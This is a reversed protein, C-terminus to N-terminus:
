KITVGTGVEAWDYLKKADGVGLRICGHSVPIGLHNQGEKYGNPWEPLEHFGYGGEKFAMWYPMWLGYKKSWARKTKNMIKFEGRPTPMTRKGTSVRAKGLSVKDIFYELEQKTTNVVIQKKMKENTEPHLGKDFATKDNVGDSNSDKKSLDSKLKIEIEDSLGDKDTDQKSLKVPLKNLPSYGGKIEEGDRYGDGDSDALLTNTKYLYMEQMDTLGDSDIDSRNDVAGVEGVTLLCFFLSGFIIRRM